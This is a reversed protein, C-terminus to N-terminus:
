AGFTFSFVAFTSTAGGAPEPRLGLVGSRYRDGALVTLLDPGEVHVVTSGDPRETMGPGRQDPPVPAGDLTVVVEAPGQAVVHVLRARFALVIEAGPGAARVDDPEARWPGGLAFGHSPTKAPRRYIHDTDRVYGGANALDGLRWGAYTEPTQGSRVPDPPESVVPAGAVLEADAPGHGDEALLRRIALETQAYEGEGFHVRAVRGRRDILYEAPWYRNGFANWTDMHPDLAVPWTVHYREVARAVNAPDQEFDFEPSHVGLVTLGQSAYREQWTRLFPFTRQCNVCSYTWFDLLVVRGRLQQLSTPPSNLFGSPRVLEPAAARPSVNLLEAGGLTGGRGTGLGRVSRPARGGVVVWTVSGVILAVLAGIVLRATRSSM